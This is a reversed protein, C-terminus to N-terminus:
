VTVCCAAPQDRRIAARLRALASLARRVTRTLASPRCCAILVALRARAAERRLEAGRTEALLYVAYPDTV